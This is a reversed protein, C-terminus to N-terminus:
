NYGHQGHEGDNCQCEERHAVRRLPAAGKVDDGAARRDAQEHNLHTEFTKPESSMRGKVPTVKGKTEM